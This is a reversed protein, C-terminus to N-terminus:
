ALARPEYRVVAAGAGSGAAPKRERTCLTVSSGAAVEVTVFSDMHSGKTSRPATPAGLTVNHRDSSLRGAPARRVAPPVAGAGRRSCTAADTARPVFGAGACQEYRPRPGPARRRA